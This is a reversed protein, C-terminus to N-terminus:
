KKEFFRLYTLIIMTLFDPWHSSWILNQHHSVSEMLELHTSKKWLYVDASQLSSKLSDSWFILYRLHLENSIIKMGLSTNKGWIWNWKICNRFTFSISIILFGWNIEPIFSFSRFRSKSTWDEWFWIECTM